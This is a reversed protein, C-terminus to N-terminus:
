SKEHKNMAPIRRLTASLPITSRHRTIFDRVLITNVKVVIHPKFLEFDMRAKVLLTVSAKGHFYPPAQEQGLM